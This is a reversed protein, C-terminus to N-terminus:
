PEFAVRLPRHGRPDMAFNAPFVPRNWANQAENTLQGNIISPNVYDYGGEYTSIISSGPWRAGYFWHAGIFGPNTSVPALPQDNGSVIFTKLDITNISPSIIITDGPEFNAYFRYQIPERPDSDDRDLTLDDPRFSFKGIYTADASITIGSTLEGKGATSRSIDNTFGYRCSGGTTILSAAVGWYISRFSSSRSRWVNFTIDPFGVSDINNNYEYFANASDAYSYVTSRACSLVMTRYSLHNYPVHAVMSGLVMRAPHYVHIGSYYDSTEDETTGTSADLRGMRIASSSVRDPAEVKYMVSAFLHNTWRFRAPIALVKLTETAPVTMFYEMNAPRTHFETKDYAGIFREMPTSSVKFEGATASLIDPFYNSNGPSYVGSSSATGWTPCAAGIVTGLRWFDGFARRYGSEDHWYYGGVPYHDPQVAGGSSADKQTYAGEPLIFPLPSAWTLNGGDDPTEGGGNDDTATGEFEFECSAPDLTASGEISYYRPEDDRYLTWFDEMDEISLYVWLYKSTAALGLAPTDETVFDITGIGTTSAMLNPVAVQNLFGASKVGEPLGTTTSRTCFTVSSEGRLVSWLKTPVASDSFHGVLRVGSRLYRSRQVALRLRNMPRPDAVPLTFRYAAVGLYGCMTDDLVFDGGQKFCDYKPNLYISCSPMVAWVVHTTGEIDYSRTAGDTLKVNNSVLEGPVDPETARWWANNQVQRQLSLLNFAMMAKYEHRNRLGGNSVQCVYRVYPLNNLITAM